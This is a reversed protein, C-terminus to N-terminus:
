TCAPLYLVFSEWVMALAGLLAMGAAVWPVFVSTESRAIQRVAVLFVVAAGALALVTVGIILANAFPYGAITPPGVDRACTLAAIAYATVFRAAWIMGGAAMFLLNRFGSWAM